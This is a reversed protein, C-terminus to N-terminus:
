KRKALRDVLGNLKVRIRHFGEHKECSPIEVEKVEM